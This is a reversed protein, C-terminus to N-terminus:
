PKFAYYQSGYGQMNDGWRVERWEVHGDVMGYNGGEPCFQGKYHNNVSQFWVGWGGRWSGDTLIADWWAIREGAREVKSFNSVPTHGTQTPGATVPGRGILYGYSMLSANNNWSDWNKPGFCYCDMHVYSAGKRRYLSHRDLDKGSPCLWMDVSSLTYDTALFCRTVNNFCYRGYYTTPLPRGGYYFCAGVPPQGDWDNGYMHCVMLFQRVHAACTARRAAERARELAPLLLAALVAIIAIVVLLEILTFARRRRMWHLSQM